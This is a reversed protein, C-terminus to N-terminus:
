GGPVEVEVYPDILDAAERQTRLQRRLRLGDGSRADCSAELGSGTHAARCPAPAPTRRGVGHAPPAEARARAPEGAVAVAVPEASAIRGGAHGADHGGHVTAAARRDHRPRQPGHALTADIFPPAGTRM